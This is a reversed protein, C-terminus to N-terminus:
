DLICAGVIPSSNLTLLEFEIFYSKNRCLMGLSRLLSRFSIIGLFVMRILNIKVRWLM